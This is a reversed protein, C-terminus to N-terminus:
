PLTMGGEFRFNFSVDDAGDEGDGLPSVGGEILLETRETVTLKVFEENLPMGSLNM